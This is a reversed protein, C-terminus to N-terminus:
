QYISVAVIHSSFELDANILLATSWVGADMTTPAKISVQQLTKVANVKSVVHSIKTDDILYFRKSHGSTCLSENELECILLTNTEDEPSQIGIRWKEGQYSGIVAIDGGYNVLASRVGCQKLLGISIDVAYEKVLGGLDIKTYPNSFSVQENEVQMQSISAFPLLELKKQYYMELSTATSLPKLTGAMAIDFCGQTKQAYFQALRLLNAM